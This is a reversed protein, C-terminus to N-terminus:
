RCESGTLSNWITSKKRGLSFSSTIFTRSCWVALVSGNLICCLFQLVQSLEIPDSVLPTEAFLDLGDLLLGTGTLTGTELGNDEDTVRLAVDTETDLGGLFDSGGDAGGDGNGLEGDQGDPSTVPTGVETLRM